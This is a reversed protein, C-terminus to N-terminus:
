RLGEIQGTVAATILSDRYELLLGILNGEESTAQERLSKSNFAKGALKQIIGDVRAIERKLFTTIKNQMELPPVVLISAKVKEATYHPITAVNCVMEVYGSVKLFTFWYYIFETTIKTKDIPRVRNIANQFYFTKDSNFVATRGADGGESVLIDGNKLSFREFETPKIWMEFEHTLDLGNMAINIARLYPKLEDQESTPDNQLMKGLQVECYKAINTKVWNSPIGDIFRM